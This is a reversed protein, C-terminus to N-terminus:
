MGQPTPRSPEWPDRALSYELEWGEGAAWARPLHGTTHVVLACPSPM